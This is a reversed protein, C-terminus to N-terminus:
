GVCRGRRVRWGVAADSMGQWWNIKEFVNKSRFAVAWGQEVLWLSVNILQGDREVYVNSLTRPPDSDDTVPEGPLQRLLVQSGVPM